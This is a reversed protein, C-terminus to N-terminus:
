KLDGRQCLVQFLLEAYIAHGRDNVHWRDAFLWADAEKENMGALGLAMIRNADCVPVDMETAANRAAQVYDEYPAGGEWTQEGSIPSVTLLIVEAKRDLFEKLLARLNAAYIDPPAGALWDNITHAEALIVDPHVAAAYDALYKERYRFTPCSGIGGNIVAFAGGYCEIRYLHFSGKEATLVLTHPADPLLLTLIRYDNNGSAEPETGEAMKRGDVTLKYSCPLSGRAYEVRLLAGDFPLTVQRDCVVACPERYDVGFAAALESACWERSCSGTTKEVLRRLRNVYGGTRFGALRLDGPQVPPRFEETLGAAGQGWTHSDGTCLIRKM